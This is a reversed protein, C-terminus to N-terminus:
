CGCVSRMDVDELTYIGTVMRVRINKMQHCGRLYQVTRNCSRPSPYQYSKMFDKVISIKTDDSGTEVYLPGPIDGILDDHIDLEIVYYRLPNHQLESAMKKM